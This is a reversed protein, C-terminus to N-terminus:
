TTPPLELDRAPGAPILGFEVGAYLVLLLETRHEPDHIADGMLEKLRRIRYRVTQDHVTLREATDVANDRCKMYELLTRAFVVRQRPPLDGLAGLRAEVAITLLEESLSVVHAAVHDMCRTVDREAIVERDVLALTRRAWRFSVAGRDPPVAPGIAARVGEGLADLVEEAAPAPVVLFPEPGYWEALVTAPLAPAAREAPSRVAVVAIAPPVPWGAAAALDALAERSAPPDSVLLECLRGRVRERETAIRENAEAFGQSVAGALKELLVFLSEILQGLTLLPWDLRKAAEIFRRCAVQGGVRMATHLQEMDRGQQAEYKGTAAYIGTLRQWDTEAPALSDFFCRATERVLWHLRRGYPSDAPRAYEPVVRQIERVIEATCAGPDARLQEAVEHVTMASSGDTM